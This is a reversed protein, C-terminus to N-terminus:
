PTSEIFSLRRRAVICADKVASPANKDLCEAGNHPRIATAVKIALTENKKSKPVLVLSGIRGDICTLTETAAPPDTELEQYDNGVLIATSAIESCLIDTKIEITVQTPELCAVFATVVPAALAVLWVRRFRNPRNM